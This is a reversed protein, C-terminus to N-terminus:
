KRKTETKKLLRAIIIMKVIALVIALAVLWLVWDPAHTRVLIVIAIIIAVISVIARALFFRRLM